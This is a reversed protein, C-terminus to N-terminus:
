LDKMKQALRSMSGSKERTLDDKAAEEKAAGGMDLDTVQLEMSRKEGNSGAESRVSEVTVKIQLTLVSGVVPLTKIKLKDLTETNMSLTMGYPYPNGDDCPSCAEASGSSPKKKASNKISTMTM